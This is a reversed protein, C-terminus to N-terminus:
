SKIQLSCTTAQNIFYFNHFKEEVKERRIVQAEDKEVAPQRQGRCKQM